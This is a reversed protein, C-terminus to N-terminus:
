NQIERVEMGERLNQAASTAITEGGSLGVVVTVTDGALEGIEVARRAVTM